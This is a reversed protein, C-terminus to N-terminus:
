GAMEEAVFTELEKLKERAVTASEDGQAGLM